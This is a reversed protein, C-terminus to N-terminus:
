CWIHAMYCWPYWGWRKYESYHPRRLGIGKYSKISRYLYIISTIMNYPRQLCSSLSYTIVTMSNKPTTMKQYDTTYWWISQTLSTLIFVPPERPALLLRVKLVTCKLDWIPSWLVVLCVPLSTSSETAVLTNRYLCPKWLIPSGLQCCIPLIM